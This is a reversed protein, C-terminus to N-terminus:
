LQDIVDFVSTMCIRAVNDANFFAIGWPSVSDGFVTMHALAQGHASNSLWSATRVTDIIIRLLELDTM